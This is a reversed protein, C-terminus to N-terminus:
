KSISVSVDIEVPLLFYSSGNIIENGVPKTPPLAM